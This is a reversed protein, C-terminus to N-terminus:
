SGIIDIAIAMSPQLNTSLTLTSKDTLIAQTTAYVSERSFQRDILRMGLGRRGRQSPGPSSASAFWASDAALQRTILMTDSFVGRYWRSVRRDEYRFTTATLPSFPTARRNHAFWRLLRSFLRDKRVPLNRIYVLRTGLGSGGKWYQMRAVNFLRSHGPSSAISAFQM